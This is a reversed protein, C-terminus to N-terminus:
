SGLTRPDLGANPERSLLSDGEGEGEAQQEGQKREKEILYIFLIKKFLQM